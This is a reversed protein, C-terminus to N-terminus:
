PAHRIPLPLLLPCVGRSAFSLRF